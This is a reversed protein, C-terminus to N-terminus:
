GVSGHMLRGRRDIREDFVRPILQDNIIEGSAKVM